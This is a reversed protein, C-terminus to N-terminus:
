KLDGASGTAATGSPASWENFGGDYNQAHLGAQSVAFTVYGSTVGNESYFILNGDANIKNAALIEKVKDIRVPEGQPNIFQTWSINIAGPIKKDKADAEDRVDIIFKDNPKKDLVEQVDSKKVRLSYNPKPNWPPVSEYRAADEVTKKGPVNLINEVKIKKIGMFELMWAIRGEEGQGTKGTGLVIVEREPNIGLYRLKRSLLNLDPDLGGKHPEQTQSYDQWRISVAGPLHGLAYDFQPRADLLVPGMYKAKKPYVPAKELPIAPSQITPVPPVILEGARALNLAFFLIFISIM